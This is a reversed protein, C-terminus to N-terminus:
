TLLKIPYTLVYSMAETLWSAGPWQGATEPAEPAQPNDRISECLHTRKNKTRTKEKIKKWNSLM